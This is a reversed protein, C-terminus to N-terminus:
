GMIGLRGGGYIVPIREKALAEGVSRAADAYITSNGM